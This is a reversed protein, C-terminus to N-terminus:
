TFRGCDTLSSPTLAMSAAENAKSSKMRRRRAPLGMETIAKNGGYSVKVSSAPPSM